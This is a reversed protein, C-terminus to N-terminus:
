ICNLGWSCQFVSINRLYQFLFLMRPLTPKFYFSCLRFQCWLVVVPVSAELPIGQTTHIIYMALTKATQSDTRIMIVLRRQIVVRVTLRRTLGFKTVAGLGFHELFTSIFCCGSSMQGMVLYGVLDMLSIGRGTWVSPRAPMWRERVAGSSFCGKCAVNIKLASAKKYRVCVIPTSASCGHTRRMALLKCFSALTDAPSSLARVEASAVYAAPTQNRNWTVYWFWSFRCYAMGM